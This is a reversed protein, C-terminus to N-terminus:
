EIPGLSIEIAKKNRKKPGHTTSHVEESVSVDKMMEIQSFGQTKMKEVNILKM